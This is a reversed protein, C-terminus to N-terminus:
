YTSAVELALIARRRATRAYREYRDLAKLEKFLSADDQGSMIQQFLRSRVIRIRELQGIADALNQSQSAENVDPGLYPELFRRAKTTAIM